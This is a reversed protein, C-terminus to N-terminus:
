FFRLVILIKFEVFFKYVKSLYVLIDGVVWYFVFMFFIWVDM